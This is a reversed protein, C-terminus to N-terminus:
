FCLVNDKPKKARCLQTLAKMAAASPRNTEYIGSYDKSKFKTPCGDVKRADHITFRREKVM